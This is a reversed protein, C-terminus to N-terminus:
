LQTCCIVVISNSESSREVEEVSVLVGVPAVGCPSRFTFVNGASSTLLVTCYQLESYIIVYYDTTLVTVDLLCVPYHLLLAALLKTAQESRFGDTPGTEALDSAKM